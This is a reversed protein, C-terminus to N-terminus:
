HLPWAKYEGKELMYNKASELTSFKKWGVSEAVWYENDDTWVVIDSNCFELESYLNKPKHRTYCSWNCLNWVNEYDDTDGVIAYGREVFQLANTNHNKWDENTPYGIQLINYKKM